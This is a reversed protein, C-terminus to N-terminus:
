LPPGPPSGLFLQSLSGLGFRALFSNPAQSVADEIAIHTAIAMIEIEPRREPPSVPSYSKGPTTGASYEGWVKLCSPLPAGLQEVGAPLAFTLVRSNPAAPRSAVLTMSLKTNVLPSECVASSALRVPRALRFAPSGRLMM